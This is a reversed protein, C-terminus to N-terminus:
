ATASANSCSRNRRKEEKRADLINQLIERSLYANAKVWKAFDDENEKKGAEECEERYMSWLTDELDYYNFSRGHWILEPDSWAGHWIFEIGRIGYFYKKM